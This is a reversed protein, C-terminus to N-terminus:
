SLHAYGRHVDSNNKYWNDARGFEGPFPGRIEFYTSWHTIARSVDSPEKVSEIDQAIAGSHGAISKLTRGAYQKWHRVPDIM